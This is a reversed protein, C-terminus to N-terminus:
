GGGGPSASVNLQTLVENGSGSRFGQLDLTVYTYGIERFRTVLPQRVQARAFEAVRDAPVEIRALTGHHRVRFDRLGLGWLYDEAAEVMALTEATIETGYPFRSSLCALAPKDATPLNMARSLHRIEAKSLGAELLPSRVQFDDAAQMGPRHDGTDDANAGNVMERIDNDAAYRKLHTYLESKCFYCRNAPNSAYNDDDLEATEILVHRCGLDAAFQKADRQERGPVAPSVGTVATVRDPGLTQVAVALVFASDVGGSFAVVVSGMEGLMDRLRALRAEALARDVSQDETDSM